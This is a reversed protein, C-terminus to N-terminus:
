ANFATVIFFDIKRNNADRMEVKRMAKNWWGCKVYRLSPHGALWAILDIYHARDHTDFPAGVQPEKPVNAPTIVFDVDHDSHGKLLMSGGLDCNFGLDFFRPRLERLLEVAEALTWLPKDSARASM